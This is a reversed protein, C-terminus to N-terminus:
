SAVLDGGCYVCFSAKSEAPVEKECAPCFSERKKRILVRTTSNPCYTMKPEHLQGCHECRKRPLFTEVHWELVKLLAVLCIVLVESSTDHVTKTGHSGLNGYGQITRMHQCTDDDIVNNNQLYRITGELESQVGKTKAKGQKQGTAAPKETSDPSHKRVTAVVRELIRRVTNWAASINDPPLEFLKQVEALLDAEEKALALLRKRLEDPNGVEASARKKLKTEIGRAKDVIEFADLVRPWAHHFTKSDSVMAPLERTIQLEQLLAPLEASSTELDRWSELHPRLHLALVVCHRLTKQTLFEESAVILTTIPNLVGVDDRISYNQKWLNELVTTSTEPIDQHRTIVGALEPWPVDDFITKEHNRPSFKTVQIFPHCTIKEEATGRARMDGTLLYTAIKDIAHRLANGTKTPLWGLFGLDEANIPTEIPKTRFSLVVGSSPFVWLSISFEIDRGAHRFMPRPLNGPWGARKRIATTVQEMFDPRLKYRTPALPHSGELRNWSLRGMMPDSTPELGHM